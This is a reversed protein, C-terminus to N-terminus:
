ALKSRIDALENLRALAAASLPASAKVDEMSAVNSWLEIRHDVYALANKLRVEPKNAVRAQARRLLRLFLSEAAM